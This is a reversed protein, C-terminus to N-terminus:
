PAAEAGHRGRAGIELEVERPVGGRAVALRVRAGIREPELHPLLDGIEEVPAGDVELLVDGVLLGARAAPSGDEVATLLLATRRPAGAGAGAPVAVPLSAVGLYGRRVTGHAALADVIRRLTAPPIALAAGRVLGASALGLARGALDVVLGGSFGAQVAVDLELYADVRTGGGTRWADGVRAVLGLGARPGRGPRTVAVIPTGVEPALEPWAAPVLAGGRARVLALDASPDRGAVEAALEEGSPLGLTVADGRDLGHAATVVAGEAWWVGGASPRRRGGDVRVVSAAATRAAAVVAASLQLGRELEAGSM